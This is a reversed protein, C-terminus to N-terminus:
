GEFKGDVSIIFEKGDQSWAMECMNKILHAALEHEGNGVLYRVIANKLERKTFYITKLSSTKM